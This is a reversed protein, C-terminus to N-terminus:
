DGGARSPWERPRNARGSAARMNSQNPSDRMGDDGNVDIPVSISSDFLTLLHAKVILNTPPRERYVITCWSVRQQLV